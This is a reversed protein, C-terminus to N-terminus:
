KVFQERLSLCLLVNFRSGKTDVTSRVNLILNLIVSCAAVVLKNTVVSDILLTADSPVNTDCPAAVSPTVGIKEQFFNVVKKTMVTQWKQPTM